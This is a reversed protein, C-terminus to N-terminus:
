IGIRVIGRGRIIVIGGTDVGGPAEAFTILRYSVASKAGASETGYGEERLLAKYDEVAVKDNKAYDDVGYWTDLLQDVEDEPSYALNSLFAFDEM